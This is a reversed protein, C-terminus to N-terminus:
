CSQSVLFVDGGSWRFMVSVCGLSVSAGSLSVDGFCWWLFIIPVGGLYSFM